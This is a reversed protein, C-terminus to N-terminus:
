QPAMRPQHLGMAEPDKRPLVAKLVEPPQMVKRDKRPLVVTRGKLLETGTRAKLPLAEV